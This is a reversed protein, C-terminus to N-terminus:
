SVLSKHQNQKVVPSRPEYAYPRTPKGDRIGEMKNPRRNQPSEIKYAKSRTILYDQLGEDRLCGIEHTKSSTSGEINHVKLKTPRQNKRLGQDRPCEFEHATSKHPRCDQPYEIKHAELSDINNIKLRM